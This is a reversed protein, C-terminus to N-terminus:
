ASKAKKAKRRKVTAAIAWAILAIPGFIVILIPLVLLVLWILFDVFGQLFDILAQVADRVAGQPKWSGIEIPQITQEAILTVNILSYSSAQEYYQMQGKIVEIQQRYYELQNFVALVDETESAEDMIEALKAEAAELSRLRSRLDVYEATVDQGSRNENRVEVADAKVQELASDLKDAPVRISISGQPVTLGSSLKTQYMNMSVVFGGLNSAMQSIAEMKAQPDAVVVSLDANMIVMREQAATGINVKAPDYSDSAVVTPMPAYGAAEDAPGGGLGRGGDFSPPEAAAYMPAVAKAGCAALLLALVIFVLFTKKKM